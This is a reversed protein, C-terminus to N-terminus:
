DLFIQQLGHLSHGPLYMTHLVFAANKGEITLVTVKQSDQGGGGKSLGEKGTDVGLSQTSAGGRLFNYSKIFITADKSIPNAAVSPSFFVAWGRSGM